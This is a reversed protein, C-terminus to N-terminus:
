PSFVVVRGAERLMGYRDGLTLDDRPLLPM